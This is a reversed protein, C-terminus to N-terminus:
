GGLTAFAARYFAWHRDGLATLVQLPDHGVGPLVIWDHPIGLGELYAHFDQNNGFTEDRDGIVLRLRSRGALRAANERAYRRPSVAQFGAQSGGYVDRLLEEAQAKSARPATTLFEQMPGAGMMSVTRFLEPYRFGFRAAGYGGMSFGDLLRGEPTALTRWNADIYPRLEHVIITEMPAKGNSWDVYMGMSLGNVFVVLFPPAKRDRIAQDFEAGLQPIGSVGGGSGHLWYVVPFRRDPHAAYDPPVYIHFSVPGGRAESGFTHFSVGPGEAAATVWELSPEVRLSPSRAIAGPAAALGSLGAGLALLHQRRNM